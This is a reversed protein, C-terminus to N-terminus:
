EILQIRNGLSSVIGSFDALQLTQYRDQELLYVVPWRLAEEDGCRVVFGQEVGGDPSAEVDHELHRYWVLGGQFERNFTEKPWVRVFKPTPSIGQHVNKM